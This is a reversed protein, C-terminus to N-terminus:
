AFFRCATASRPWHTASSTLWRRWSNTKRRDAERLAAELRKVDEIDTCTGFWYVIKGLENRIPVGRTKFWHYEGDYRRIRYELDYNAKDACAAMWCALTRERDDPHLVTELWRLGLLEHEPIGTYKGWQSSLWDCQGNPLDTWVLNPLAEAMTRWRQESARLAEEQRKRETIDMNVGMIRVPKEHGDKFVHARIELWHVSGDPWIVRFESFYEGTELARRVDEEARPLDDPHILKAWGEYGGEFGGPPLGYM